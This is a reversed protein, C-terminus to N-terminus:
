CLRATGLGASTNHGARCQTAKRPGPTPDRGMGPCGPWGPPDPLTFHPAEHNGSPPWNAFEILANRTAKLAPRPPAPPLALMILLAAPVGAAVGRVLSRAAPM